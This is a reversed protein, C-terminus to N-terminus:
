AALRAGPGPRARVDRVTLPGHGADCQLVARVPAGCGAHEVAVSPGVEDALWRDGWDRLAALVGYLERGKDTLRYESRPRQGQERYPARELIGHEVLTALRASLVNRACGLRHQFDEFRHVGTFAERLVLLTWKEGIVSLTRAISCNAPSYRLLDDTVLSM